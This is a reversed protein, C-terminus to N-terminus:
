QGKASHTMVKALQPEEIAQYKQWYGRTPGLSFM